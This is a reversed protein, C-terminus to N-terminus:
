SAGAVDTAVQEAPKYEVGFQGGTAQWLTDLAMQFGQANWEYCEATTWPGIHSGTSREAIRAADQLSKEQHQAILKAALNVDRRLKELERKVNALEVEPGTM